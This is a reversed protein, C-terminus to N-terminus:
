RGFTSNVCGFSNGCGDRCTNKQVDTASSIDGAVFVVRHQYVSRLKGARRSDIDFVTIRFEPNGVLCKLLEQGVTGSAGTLLINTIAM